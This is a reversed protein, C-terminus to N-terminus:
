TKEAAEEGKLREIFESALKSGAPTLKALVNASPNRSILGASELRKAAEGEMAGILGEGNSEEDERRALYAFLELDRVNAQTM